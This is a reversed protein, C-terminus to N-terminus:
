AGPRRAVRARQVEEEIQLAEKLGPINEPSIKYDACAEKAIETQLMGHLFGKAIVETAIALIKEKEEVDTLPLRHDRTTNIYKMLHYEVMFSVAYKQAMVHNPDLDLPDFPKKTFNGLKDVYLKVLPLSGAEIQQFMEEMAKKIKAITQENSGYNVYNFADCLLGTKLNFLEGAIKEEAGIIQGINDGRIGGGDHSIAGWKSLAKSTGAAVQSATPGRLIAPVDFNFEKAKQRLQEQMVDASIRDLGSKYKCVEIISAKLQAHTEDIKRYKVAKHTKLIFGRARSLVEEANTDGSVKEGDLFQGLWQKCPGTILYAIKELQQSSQGVFMDEKKESFTQILRVFAGQISKIYANGEPIYELNREHILEYFAAMENFNEEVDPSLKKEEPARPAPVAEPPLDRGTMQKFIDKYSKAESSPKPQANLLAAKYQQVEADFPNASSAHAKYVALAARKVGTYLNSYQTESVTKVNRPFVLPRALLKGLPTQPEASICHAEILSMNEAKKLEALMNGFALFASKDLAKEQSAGTTKALNDIAEKFQKTSEALPSSGNLKEEVLGIFRALTQFLAKDTPEVTNKIESTHASALM